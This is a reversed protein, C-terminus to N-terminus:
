GGESIKPVQLYEVFSAMFFGLGIGVVVGIVLNLKVNPSVPTDSVRAPDLLTIEYITKLNKVYALTEEAVQNTLLYVMEPDTGTVTIEILTTEQLVASKIKYNKDTAFGLAHWAQDEITDSQIIEAYTNTVIPAELDSIASRLERLDTTVVDSPHVILRLDSEYLPAQSFTFVITSVIVVIAVIAVMWWWKWLIWFYQRVEM